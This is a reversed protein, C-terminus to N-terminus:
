IKLMRIAMTNPKVRWFVINNLCVGCVFFLQFSCSSHTPETFISQLKSLERKELLVFQKCCKKISKSYSLCNNDLFLIPECCIASVMIYIPIQHFLRYLSSIASFIDFKFFEFFFIFHSNRKKKNATKGQRLNKECNESFLAPRMTLMKKHCISQKQHNKRECKIEMKWEIERNNKQKLNESNKRDVMLVKSRNENSAQTECKIPLSLPTQNWDRKVKTVVNSVNM